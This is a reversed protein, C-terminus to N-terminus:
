SKAIKESGKWLYPFLGVAALIKLADGIIFPILGAMLVKWLSWTPFNLWLGALGFLYLIAEGFLMVVLISKRTRGYGKEIMLGVFFAM